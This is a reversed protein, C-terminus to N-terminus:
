AAQADGRGAAKKAQREQAKREVDVRNYLTGLDTQVTAIEGRLGLERIWQVTLETIRAATKASIWDKPDIM